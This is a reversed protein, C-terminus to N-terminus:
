NKDNEENMATHTLKIINLVNEIQKIQMKRVCLPYTTTEKSNETAVHSSLEALLKCLCSIDQYEENIRFDKSKKNM